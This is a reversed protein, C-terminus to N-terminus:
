CPQAPTLRSADSNAVPQRTNLFGISRVVQFVISISFGISPGCRINMVLLHRTELWLMDIFQSRTLLLSYLMTTLDYRGSQRSRKLVRAHRVGKM